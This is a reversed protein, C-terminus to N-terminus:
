LGIRKGSLKWALLLACLCMDEKVREKLDQAWPGTGTVLEKAHSRVTTKPVQNASVLCTGHM